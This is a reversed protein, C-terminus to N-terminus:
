PNFEKIIKEADLPIQQFIDKSEEGRGSASSTDVAAAKHHLLREDASRLRRVLMQVLLQAWLPLSYINSQFEEASIHVIETEQLASATASRNQLDIAAMEGFMSGKGLMALEVKKNGDDTSISVLGSTIIYVGDCDAKQSFILESAKYKKIESM